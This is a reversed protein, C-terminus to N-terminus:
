LQIVTSDIPINFGTSSVVGKFRVIVQKKKRILDFLSLLAQKIGEKIVTAHVSYITTNSGKITIPNQQSIKSFLKDNIFLDGVISNISLPTSTPNDIRFNVLLTPDNLGVPKEIKFNHFNVKLKKAASARSVLFMIGFAGAILLIPIDTKPM